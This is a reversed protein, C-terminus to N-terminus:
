SEESVRRREALEKDIDDWTLLPEGSAIIKTRIERLREGLSTRPRREVLIRWHNEEFRSPEPDLGGVATSAPEHYSKPGVLCTDLQIGAAGLFWGRAMSSVDSVLQPIM